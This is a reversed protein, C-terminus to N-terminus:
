SRSGPGRREYLVRGPLYRGVKESWASGLAPPQFASDVSSLILTPHVRIEYRLAIDEMAAREEMESFFAFGDGM